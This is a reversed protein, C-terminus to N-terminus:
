RILELMQRETPLGSSSLSYFDDIFERVSRKARYSAMYDLNYILELQVDVVHMASRLASLNNGSMKKISDLDTRMWRTLSSYARAFLVHSSGADVLYVNWGKFPEGFVALNHRNRLSRIYKNKYVSRTCGGLSTIFANIIKSEILTGNDYWSGADLYEEIAKALGDAVDTVSAYKRKM